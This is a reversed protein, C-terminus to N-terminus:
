ANKTRPAFFITYQETVGLVENMKNFENAEAVKEGAHYRIIIPSSETDAEVQVYENEDGNKIAEGLYQSVCKFTFPSSGNSSWVDDISVKRNSKLQDNSKAHLMKTKPDCTISATHVHRQKKIDESYTASIGKVANMWNGLRTTFKLKNSRNLLLNEDPWKINPDIQSIVAEIQGCRIVIQREGAYFSMYDGAMKGFVDVMAPTVWNPVLINQRKTANTINDGNVDLVAFRGGSGAVFRVSNKGARIVWYLYAPRFEQYGQAFAIRNAASVFVDRRIKLESDPNVPEQLTSEISFVACPLTQLETEDSLLTCAVEHGSDLISEQEKDGDVMESSADLTQNEQENMGERDPVPTKPSDDQDADAETDAGSSARLEFLIEDEPNFSQLMKRIDLARITVSGPTLCEFGLTNQNLADLRSTVSMRGGDASVLIGDESINLTIFHALRYDKSTGKTSVTIAPELGALLGRVKAKFKM